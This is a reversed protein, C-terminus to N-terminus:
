AAGIPGLRRNLRDLADGYIRAAEMEIPDRFRFGRDRAVTVQQRLEVQLLRLTAEPLWPDDAEVVYRRATGLYARGSEVYDRLRSLQTTAMM